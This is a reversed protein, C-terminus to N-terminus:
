TKEIDGSVREPRDEECGYHLLLPFTRSNHELVCSPALVCTLFSGRILLTRGCAAPIASYCVYVNRQGKVWIIAYTSFM